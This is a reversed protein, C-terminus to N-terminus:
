ITASTNGGGTAIRIKINKEPYKIEFMSLPTGLIANDIYEIQTSYVGNNPDGVRSGTAQPSLTESYQGGELNYFRIDVVNIVGPIDRLEDIIQSIFINQNMHWRSIDMFNKIKNIASVKVESSNFSKDVFLDAQVELNIVKGDNIEVFDNIMRFPTLYKVINSKIENTSIDNLKGNSDITLIYLIVKNDEVVGYIRFPAGFKGPLQYCRSIYDELTVCRKQSAFNSAIYNKIEAITPLGRGGIAPIPNNVRLSSVVAQNKASDAGGIVINANGISQLVYSGINSLVGGGVRYKIYLTSNGQVMEGLASPNLLLSSTNLSTTQYCGNSNTLEGLYEDFSDYDQQGGGFTIKCRGDSLFEKTFRKTINIYKGIKIGNVDDATDDEVFVQSTALYDVEWFKKSLDEYDSFEPVKTLGVGNEIVVGTIELVNTEPLTVQFFPKEDGSELEVKYIRSVGAKVLERKILRYKVLDQSSNLIPEIIRNRKGDESYDSTFDIQNVTEFTQGGGKLQLGPRILPAYTYDPGDATTPLEISIDAITTSARVGPVQYGFTKAMRYVSDRQQVGDLFLENYKKDITYSLLDAVYANLEVMAMGPSAINFDQWQQPFFNKLYNILDNRVSYFDKSLYNVKIKNIANENLQSHLNINAM